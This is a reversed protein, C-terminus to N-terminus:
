TCGRAGRAYQVGQRAHVTRGVAPFGFKVGDLNGDAISRYAEQEESEAVGILYMSEAYDM